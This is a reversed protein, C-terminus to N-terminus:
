NAFQKAKRKNRKHVKEIAINFNLYKIRAFTRFRIFKLLVERPLEEEDPYKECLKDFLREIVLKDHDISHPGGHFDNFDQELLRLQDVFIPSPQMLGGRSIAALWPDVEFDEPLQGTFGIALDQHVHQFKAALWGAVYVLGSEGVDFEKVSGDDVPPPPHRSRTRDAVNSTEEEEEACDNDSDDSDDSSEEEDSDEDDDRDEPRFYQAILADYEPNDFEKDQAESAAAATEAAPVPDDEEDCDTTDEDEEEDRAMTQQGVQSTVQTSEEVIATDERFEVSAKPVVYDTDQGIMVLRLHNFAQTVDPSDNAAGLGRLRSFLNEVCDSNLRSTMVYPMNYRERVYKYLGKMSACVLAIGKQFPLLAADKKAGVKRLKTITDAMDDLIAEQKSLATGYAGSIDVGKPDEKCRSNMVRFWDHVLNFFKVSDPKDLLKEMLAATTRSLLQAAPRVRQRESGKVLLHRENLKHHVTIEKNVARVLKMLDDYRITEGSPLRYGTDLVHNRCSKLLHPVDFFMYIRRNGDFPHKMYPNEASIGLKTFLGQNGGGQDAVGAVVHYGLEEVAKIIEKLTEETMPVDLGTWVAQKFPYALGRVMAVHLYSAAKRVQKERHDYSLRQSLKMEDFSITVVRFLNKDRERQEKFKERLVELSSQLLGEDCKFDKIYRRLTSLGPLAYKDRQKLRRRYSKAGHCRDMLADVIEERTWQRVPRARKNAMLEDKRFITALRATSVGHKDKLAKKVAPDRPNEKAEAKSKRTRNLTDQLTHVKRRLRAIEETSKEATEKLAKQLRTIEEDKHQLVVKLRDIEDDKKVVEIWADLNLAQEELEQVEVVLKQIIEEKDELQAKLQAVEGSEEPAPPAPDASDGGDAEEPAQDVVPAHDVVSDIELQQIRENILEREEDSLPEVEIGPGVEMDEEEQAAAGPLRVSPVAKLRLTRKSGKGVVYDDPTFHLECVRPDGKVSKGRLNLAQFTLSSNGM